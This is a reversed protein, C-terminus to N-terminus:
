LLDHAETATLPPRGRKKPLPTAALEKIDNIWDTELTFAQQEDFTPESDVIIPPAPPEIVAQQNRSRQFTALGM